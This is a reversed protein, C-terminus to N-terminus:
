EPTTTNVGSLQKRQRPKGAKNYLVKPGFRFTGLVALVLVGAVNPAKQNDCFTVHWLAFLVAFLLWSWISIAVSCRNACTLTCLPHSFPLQSSCSLIPCHSPPHVPFTHTWCCFCEVGRGLRSGEVWTWMPRHWLCQWQLALYVQHGPVLKERPLLVFTGNSQHEGVELLGGSASVGWWICSATPVAANCHPSNTLNPQRITKIHCNCFFLCQISKYKTLWRPNVMKM